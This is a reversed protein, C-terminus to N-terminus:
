RGREFGYALDGLRKWLLRASARSTTDYGTCICIGFTHGVIDLAECEAHITVVEHVGLIGAQRVRVRIFGLDGEAIPEACTPCVEGIPTEVRRAGDPQSALVGWPEGFFVTEGTDTM